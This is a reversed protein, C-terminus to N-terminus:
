SADTSQVGLPPLASNQLPPSPELAPNSLLLGFCRVAAAPQGEVLVWVGLLLAVVARQFAARHRGGAETLWSM